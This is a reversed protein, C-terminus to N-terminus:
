KLGEEIVALLKELTYLDLKSIDFSKISNILKEKKKRSAIAKVKDADAQTINSLNWVNAGVREGDNRRFREGSNIIIMTKTVRDVIGVRDNYRSKVIVTDGYKLSKLWETKNNM